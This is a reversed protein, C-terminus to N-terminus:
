KPDITRGDLNHPCNELARQVNEPDAFTSCFSYQLGARSVPFDANSVHFRLGKIQRDRQEEYCRLRHGGWLSQLLAALEGVPHGLKLRFRLAFLRRQFKPPFTLPFCFIFM